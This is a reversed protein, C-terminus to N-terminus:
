VVGVCFGVDGGDPNIEFDPGNLQLAFGDLQLDPVRRALLSESGNCGTIVSPRMANDNYVVYRVLPRKVVHFLPQLLDLTVGALRDVFEENSVLGVEVFFTTSQVVAFSYASESAM